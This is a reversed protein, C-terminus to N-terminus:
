RTTKLDDLFDKLERETYRGLLSSSRLITINDKVEFAKDWGRGEGYRTLTDSANFVVPHDAYELMPVDGVTDGMAVSGQRTVVGEHVLERLLDDKKGVSEAVGTFRGDEIGYTSGFVKDVNLDAVFPRVLVEPSGSIVITTHTNGLTEIMIRPLRFKRTDHKRLMNATVADFREVEVGAMQVVLAGVLQKLYTQYIDENNDEQWRQRSEYVENFPEADFLDEAIGHEVIKEALSSKFITGDVDFAAFPKPM